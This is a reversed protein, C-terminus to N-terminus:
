LVTIYDQFLKFNLIEWVSFHTYFFNDLYKRLVNSVSVMLSKPKLQNIETMVKAQLKTFTLSYIYISTNGLEKSYELSYVTKCNKKVTLKYFQARNPDLQIRIYLFLRLYPFSGFGTM